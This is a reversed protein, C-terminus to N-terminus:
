RRTFLRWIAILADKWLWWLLWPVGVVMIANAVLILAVDVISVGQATGSWFILTVFAAWAWWPISAFVAKRTIQVDPHVAVFLRAAGYGFVMAWIIQSGSGSAFPLRFPLLLTVILGLLTAAAALMWFRVSHVGTM